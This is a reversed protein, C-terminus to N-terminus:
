LSRKGFRTQYAAWVGTQDPLGLHACVTQHILDLTQPDPTSASALSQALPTLADFLSHFNQPLPLRNLWAIRVQPLTARTEGGSLAYYLRIAPSNLYAMLGWLLHTHEPFVARINHVSNISYHSNDLDMGVVPMNATQRSVLKPSNFIGPNRLSTGAKKDAGTVLKPNYRVGLTPRTINFGWPAIDRGTLVPALNTKSKGSLKGILKKRMRATGPNIGDKVLFIDGLLPGELGAITAQILPEIPHKYFIVPSASPAQTAIWTLAPSYPNEPVHNAQAAHTQPTDKFFLGIVNQVSADFLPKEILLWRQAPFRRALQLRDAAYSDAFALTDPTLTCAVGQPKTLAGIAHIFQTFLNVRGQARSAPEQTTLMKAKRSRRSYAPVYPPNLLLIDAADAVGPALGSGVTLTLKLDPHYQTLRARAIALATADIDVGVLRGSFPPDFLHNLAHQIAGLAALLLDGTGAAPDLVTVTSLAETLAPRDEASLAPEDTFLSAITQAPINTKQAAWQSIASQAMLAAAAPPTYYVGADSRNGHTVEYFRAMAWLSPPPTINAPPMEQAPSSGEPSLWSAILVQIQEPTLKGARAKKAAGQAWGLPTVGRLKRAATPSM